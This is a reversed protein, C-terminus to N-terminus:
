INDYLGISSYDGVNGFIRRNRRNILGKKMENLFQKQSAVDAELLNKRRMGELTSYGLQGIGLGITWDINEEEQDIKDKRLKYARDAQKIRALNFKHAALRSAKDLALGKFQEQRGFQYAAHKATIKETIPRNGTMGGKAYARQIERQYRPDDPNFNGV